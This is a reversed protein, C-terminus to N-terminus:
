HLYQFIFYSGCLNHVLKADIGNSIVSSCIVCYFSSIDKETMCEQLSLNLSSTTIKKDFFILFTGM